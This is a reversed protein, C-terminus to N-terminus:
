HGEAIARKVLEALSNVGLARMLRARRDEVTRISVGLQKAILKNPVGHVVLLLVDRQESHLDAISSSENLHMVGCSCIGNM